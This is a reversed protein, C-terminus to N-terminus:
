EVAGVPGKDFRDYKGETAHARARQNERPSQGKNREEWTICAGKWSRMPNKGVRWGNSEYFAIFAKASFTYGKEGIHAQVEELTPRKLKGAPRAQSDGKANPDLVVNDIGKDRDTGEIQKAFDKAFAKTFAEEFAKGLGKSFAKLEEYILRKLACDPLMNYHKGWHKLINPNGPPNISAANPLWILRAGWDEKVMGERRAENFAKDFAKLSWGLSEAIGARGAVITGPIATSEPCTLLYLFLAQGSPQLPSLKQFSGSRWIRIMVKRYIEDVPM